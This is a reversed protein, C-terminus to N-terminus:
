IQRILLYASLIYIYIFSRQIYTFLAVLVDGLSCLTVVAPTVRQEGRHSCNYISLCSCNDHRSCNSCTIYLQSIDTTATM